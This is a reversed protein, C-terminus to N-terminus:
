TTKGESKELYLKYLRLYEVDLLKLRLAIMQSLGKLIAIGQKPHKELFYDLDPKFIVALKSNEVAVASASRIAEDMLALEGFFDGRNFVALENREGGDISQYIKIKGERIIYLGIGPDGEYFVHENVSYVRNHILEMLQKLYHKGLSKFPPMSLLVHELDSKEIPNKFLNSWFSSRSLNENTSM